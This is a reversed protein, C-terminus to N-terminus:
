RKKRVYKNLYLSLVSSTVVVFISPIVAFGANLRGNSCIVFVASAITYGIMIMEISLLIIIRIVIKKENKTLELRELM